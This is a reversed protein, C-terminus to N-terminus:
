RLTPNKILNLNLHFQRMARRTERVAQVRNRKPTYDLKTLYTDTAEVITTAIKEIEYTEGDPWYKRVVATM